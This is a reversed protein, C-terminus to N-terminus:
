VTKLYEIFEIHLDRLLEFEDYYDEFTDLYHMKRNEGKYYTSLEIGGQMTVRYFIDLEEGNLTFTEELMDINYDMM